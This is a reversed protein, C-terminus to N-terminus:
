LRSAQGKWASNFTLCCTASHCAIVLQAQTSSHIKATSSFSIGCFRFSGLYLQPEHCQSQFDRLSVQSEGTLSEQGATIVGPEQSLVGPAKGLPYSSPARRAPILGESPDSLGIDIKPTSKTTPRGSTKAAGPGSSGPRLKPHSTFQVPRPSRVGGGSCM